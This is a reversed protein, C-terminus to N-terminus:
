EITSGDDSDVARPKYRNEVRVSDISGDVVTMEIRGFKMGSMKRNLWLWFQEPLARIDILRKQTM